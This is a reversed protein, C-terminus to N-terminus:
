FIGIAGLAARRPRMLTLRVPSSGLVGVGRFEDDQMPIPIMFCRPPKVRVRSRVWGGALRLDARM